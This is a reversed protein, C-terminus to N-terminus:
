LSLRFARIRARLLEEATGGTSRLRIMEVVDEDSIPLILKRQSIWQERIAHMGAPGAGFRAMVLAFNGAGYDKLYHAVELVPRKSIPRAYNKADAVVFHASYTERMRAWFGDAAGNDLVIDRRNRGELDRVEFQPPDLPPCFLYRLCEACWRQYDMWEGDVGPQIASLRSLLSEGLHALTLAPSAVKPSDYGFYRSSLDDPCLELLRLADWIEVGQERALEAAAPTARSSTVIVMYDLGASARLHVLKAIDQGVKAADLYAGHHIEFAWLLPRRLMPNRQSAVIDIQRGALVEDTRLTDFTGQSRIVELVFEEFRRWEMGRLTEQRSPAAAEKM